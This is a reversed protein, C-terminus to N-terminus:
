FECYTLGDYWNEAWIKTVDDSTKKAEFEKQQERSLNEASAVFNRAHYM